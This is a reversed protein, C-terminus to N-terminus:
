GCVDLKNAVKICENWRCLSFVFFFNFKRCWSIHKKREKPSKPFTVAFFSSFFFSLWRTRLLFFFSLLRDFSLREIEKRLNQLGHLHFHHLFILCILLSPCLLSLFHYNFIFSLAQGCCIPDNSYNEANKQQKHNSGCKRLHYHFLFLIKHGYLLATPM